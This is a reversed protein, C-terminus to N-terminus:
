EKGNNTLRKHWCCATNRIIDRCHLEHDPTVSGSWCQGEQEHSSEKDPTEQTEM